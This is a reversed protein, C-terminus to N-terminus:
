QQFGLVSVSHTTVTTSTFGLNTNTTICLPTQLPIVAGGNVGVYIDEFIDVPTGTNEVLKVVGATAGNSVIIDTICLQTSAGPAAVLENATQATAHNESAKFLTPQAVNEVDVKVNGTTPDVAVAKLDTGDDGLILSGQGIADGEANSLAAILADLSTTDGAITVLDAAANALDLDMGDLVADITTVLSNLTGQNTIVTDQKAETANAAVDLAIADLVADITVVLAELDDQNTIMTAQNAASADGGGGGGSGGGPQALVTATFCFLVLIINIILKM